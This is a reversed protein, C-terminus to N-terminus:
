APQSKSFYQQAFDYRIRHVAVTRDRRLARGIIIEHGDLDLLRHADDAILIVPRALAKPDLSVYSGNESVAHRCYDLIEADIVQITTVIEQRNELIYRRLKEFDIQDGTGAHPPGFPHDETQLDLRDTM